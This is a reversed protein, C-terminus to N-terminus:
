IGLHAWRSVPHSHHETHTRLTHSYRGSLLFDKLYSVHARVHQMIYYAQLKRVGEGRRREIVEYRM